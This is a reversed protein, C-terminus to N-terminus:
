PDVFADAVDLGALHFVRFLGHSPVPQLIGAVAAVEALLVDDKLAEVIEDREALPAVRNEADHRPESFVAAIRGHPRGKLLGHASIEIPGAARRERRQLQEDHFQEAHDRRVTAADRDDTVGAGAGVARRRLLAEAQGQLSVAVHARRVVLVLKSGTWQFSGFV